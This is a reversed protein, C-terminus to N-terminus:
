DVRSPPSALLSATAMGFRTAVIKCVKSSTPLSRVMGPTGESRARIAAASGIGPNTPHTWEEVEGPLGIRRRVADQAPGYERVILVVLCGGPRPLGDRILPEPESDCGIKRKFRRVLARSAFRRLLGRLIRLGDYVLEMGAPLATTAEHELEHSM